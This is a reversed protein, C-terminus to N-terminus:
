QINISDSYITFSISYIVAVNFPFFLLLSVGFHAYFEINEYNNIVDFVQPWLLLWWLIYWILVPQKLTKMIYGAVVLVLTVMWLEILPNGILFSQIYGM